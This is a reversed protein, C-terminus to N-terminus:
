AFHSFGGQAGPSRRREEPAPGERQEQRGAGRVPLGSAGGALLGEDAELAAHGEVVLPIEAGREDLELAGVLHGGVVAHEEVEALGAHFQLIVGRREAEELAVEGLPALLDRGITARDGFGLDLLELGAHRAEGHLHVEVPGLHQDVVDGDADRGELLRHQHAGPPALDGGLARADRGHAADHIQGAAITEVHGELQRGRPRGGRGRGGRRRRRGHGRRRQRRRRGLLV